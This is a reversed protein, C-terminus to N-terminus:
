GQEEDRIKIGEKLEKKIERKSEGRFGVTEGERRERGGRRIRLEGEGEWVWPLTM